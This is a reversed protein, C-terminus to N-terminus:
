RCKGPNLPGGDPAANLRLRNARRCSVDHRELAARFPFVTCRLDPARETRRMCVVLEEGLRWMHTDWGGRGRIDLGALDPHQDELLDRVLGAIIEVESDNM